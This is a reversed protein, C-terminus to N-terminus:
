GLTLVKNQSMVAKREQIQSLRLQVGTINLRVGEVESLMTMLGSHLVQIAEIAKAEEQDIQELNMESIPTIHSM